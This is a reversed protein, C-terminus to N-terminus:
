RRASARPSLGSPRGPLGYEPVPPPEVPVQQWTDPIVLPAWEIELAEASSRIHEPRCRRAIEAELAWLTQRQTLMRWHTRSIEHALDLRQQRVVLLACATGGIVLIIVLLKAFLANHM